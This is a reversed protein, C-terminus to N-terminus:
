GFKLQIIMFVSFIPYAANLNLQTQLGLGLKNHGAYIYKLRLPLDLNHSIYDVTKRQDPDYAFVKRQFVGVGVYAELTFSKSTRFERGYVLDCIHFENHKGLFNLEGGFTISVALIDKQKNFRGALDITLDWDHDKHFYLDFPPIFVSTSILAIHFNKKHGLQKYLTDTQANLLFSFFFLFNLIFLKKKM